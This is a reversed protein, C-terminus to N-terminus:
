NKTIKRIGRVVLLESTMVTLPDRFKDAFFDQKEKTQSFNIEM